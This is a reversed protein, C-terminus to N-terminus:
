CWVLTPALLSVGDWHNARKTGPRREWVRVVLGVLVEGLVVSWIVIVVLVYLLSVLLLIVVVSGFPKIGLPPEKVMVLGSLVLAM